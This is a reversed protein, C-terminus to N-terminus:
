NQYRPLKRELIRRVKYQSLDVTQSINKISTKKRRLEVVKSILPSPVKFRKIKVPQVRDLTHKNVELLKVKLKLTKRILDSSKSITTYNKVGIQHVISKSFYKGLNSQQVGAKECVDSMTIAKVDLAILTLTCIVAASVEEKAFQISPYFYELLLLANQVVKGKLQFSKLISRIYSEIIEKKNRTRFGSYQSLVSNLGAVFDCYNLQYYNLLDPLPILTGQTKLFIYLVVVGLNKLARYKSRSKIHDRIRDFFQLFEESRNALDEVRFECAFDFYFEKVQKNLYNKYYNVSSDCSTMNEGSFM